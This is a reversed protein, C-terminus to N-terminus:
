EVTRTFAVIPLVLSQQHHKPDNLTASLGITFDHRVQTGIRNKALDGTQREVMLFFRVHTWQGGLGAGADVVYVGHVRELM